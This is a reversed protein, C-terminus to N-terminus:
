FGKEIRKKSSILLRIWKHKVELENHFALGTIFFIFINGIGQWLTSALPKPTGLYRHVAYIGVFSIFAPILSALSLSTWSHKITKAIRECLASNFGGMFFNYAFQKVFALFAIWYGYKFNIYYVVSGTLLGAMLGMKFNMQRRVWDVFRLLNSSKEKQAVLLL